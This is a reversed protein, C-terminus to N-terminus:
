TCSKRRIPALAILNLLLTQVLHPLQRHALQQAQTTQHPFLWFLWAQVAPAVTKKQLIQLLNVVVVVEEVQIQPQMQELEPHAELVAVVQEAQDALLVKDHEVAVVAQMLLRLAQLLHRLELAVLVVL